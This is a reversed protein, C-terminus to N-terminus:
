SPYNMAMKVLTMIGTEAAAAAAAAVAAGVGAASGWLRKASENTFHTWAPIRPCIYLLTENNNDYVHNIHSLSVSARYLSGTCKAANKNYQSAHGLVAVWVLIRGNINYFWEPFSNSNQIKDEIATGWTWYWLGLGLKYGGLFYIHYFFYFTINTFPILLTAHLLCRLQKKFLVENLFSSSDLICM